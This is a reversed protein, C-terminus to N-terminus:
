RPGMDAMSKQLRDASARYEINYKPSTYKYRPDGIADAQASIIARPKSYSVQNMEKDYVVWVKGFKTDFDTKDEESQLYGTRGMRAKPYGYYAIQYRKGAITNRRILNGGTDILVGNLQGANIRSLNTDIFYYVPCVTFHDRFDNRIASYVGRLDKNLQKMGEDDGRAKLAQMRNHESSLQVLLVDPQFVSKSDQAMTASALCFFVILIM